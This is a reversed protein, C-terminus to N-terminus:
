QGGHQAEAEQASIRECLKAGGWSPVGQRAQQIEDLEGGAQEADPQHVDADAAGDGERPQVVHQAERGRGRHRRQGAGEDGDAHAATVNRGVEIEPEAHLAPPYAVEQARQDHRRQQQGDAEVAQRQVVGM